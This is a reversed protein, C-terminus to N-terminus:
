TNWSSRTPRPRTSPFIRSSSERTQAKRSKSGTRSMRPQIIARTCLLDRVEENYIEIFSCRILFEKSKTESISKLIHGFSRPIIGQLEEDDVKGVMSHTKGCGTQGYAFITGNYGTLVNEVLNYATKTYVTQQHSDEGFVNDFAFAKINDPEDPKKLSVQTFDGEVSVINHCGREKEKANMPRIRVVVKIAESM